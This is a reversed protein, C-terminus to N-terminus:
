PWTHGQWLEEGLVKWWPVTNVLAEFTSWKKCSNKLYRVHHMHPARAAYAGEIEGREKYCGEAWGWGWCNRFAHHLPPPPPLEAPGPIGVVGAGGM